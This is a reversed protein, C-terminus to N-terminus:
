VTPHYVCALLRASLRALSAKAEKEMVACVAGWYGLQICHLFVCDPGAGQRRRQWHQWHMSHTAHQCDHSCFQAVRCRGCMYSRGTM